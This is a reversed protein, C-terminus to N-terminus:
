SLPESRRAQSDESAESKPGCRGNDPATSWGMGGRGLVAEVEYGPVQPLAAIPTIAGAASTTRLGPLLTVVQDDIFCFERRWRRIEPLLEPCDRCMEDPTKGSDLMEELLGLVRPNGAMPQRVRRDRRSAEVPLVLESNKSTLFTAM